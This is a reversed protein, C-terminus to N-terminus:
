DDSVRKVVDHTDKKELTRMPTYFFISPPFCNVLDGDEKRVLHRNVGSEDLGVREM